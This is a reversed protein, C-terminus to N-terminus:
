SIASRGARERWYTSLTAADSFFVNRDCRDVGAVARAYERFAGGGSDGAYQWFRWGRGNWATPLEPQVRYDALWLDCRALLSGPRVAGGLTRGRGGMPQGDAWSPHIYLLPLRGTAALVTAVFDEARALDMSNSQNRENLELDLAILTQPGPQATALFNQAQDAGPRQNTGFHYAGWLLGAAEAQARRDAYAPDAWDWGESSKHIVGLIGSARMAGFDSVMNGHSIDIVANLGVLDPNTVPAPTALRRPSSWAAQDAASSSAVVGGAMEAGSAGGGMSIMPAVPPPAARRACATMGSVALGALGSMLTRRSLAM